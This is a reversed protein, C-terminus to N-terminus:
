LDIHEGFISFSKSELDDIWIGFKWEPLKAFKFHCVANDGMEFIFYGDGFSIDTLEFKAKLQDLIENQLDLNTIEPM